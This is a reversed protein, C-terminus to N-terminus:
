YRACRFGVNAGSENLSGWNRAAVRADRPASMWGGGRLVHAVGYAPGPPAAAPVSPESHIAYRDAYWDAVWEEVNGVMDVAGYPSAGHPHSGVPRPGTSSCSVGSRNSVLTTALDCRIAANGWPYRIHLGGGAAFEWEAESPLRKGVARCYADAAQWSVCNAPFDAADPRDLTCGAGRTVVGLCEGRAICATMARATVETRDIWFPALQVRHPPRENPEGVHPNEQGMTFEGGPIFVMGESIRVTPRPAPAPAESRPTSTPTPATDGVDIGFEPEHPEPDVGTPGPITAGAMM